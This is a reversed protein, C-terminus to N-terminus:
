SDENKATKVLWAVKMESVLLDGQYKNIGQQIKKNCAITELLCLQGFVAGIRLLFTTYLPEFFWHPGKELFVQKTINM